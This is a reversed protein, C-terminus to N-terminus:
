RSVTMHFGTFGYRSHFTDMSIWEGGRLPDAIHVQSGRVELVPIFHGISGLKVGVVAPFVADPLFGDRFDFRVKFGRKRLVRALYWAETGNQYTHAARATERETLNVGLFKAITCASAPGCTSATSQLCYGTRWEEAFDEEALPMVVPKLYPGIAASLLGFVPLAVLLKPLFTAMVGAAAGAPLIFFESGRWSRMEYYWAHELPIGAYYAAVLASPISLILFGALSWARIPIGVHRLRGYATVFVALAAAAAIFGTLNAGNM